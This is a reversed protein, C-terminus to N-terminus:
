VKCPEFVRLAVRKAGIVEAEAFKARVEGVHAHEAEGRRAVSKHSPAEFLDEAEAVEGLECVVRGRRLALGDRHAEM